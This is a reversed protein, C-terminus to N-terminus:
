GSSLVHGSPAQDGWGLALFIPPASCLWPLLWRPSSSANNQPKFSFSNIGYPQCNLRLRDSASAAM